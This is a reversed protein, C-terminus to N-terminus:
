HRPSPWPLEAKAACHAPSATRNDRAIGAASSTAVSTCSVTSAIAESCVPKPMQEPGSVELSSAHGVMQCNVGKRSSLLGGEQCLVALIAPRGRADNPKHVYQRCSTSDTLEDRQRVGDYEYKRRGYRM